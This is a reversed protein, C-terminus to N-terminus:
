VEILLELVFSVADKCYVPHKKNKSKKPRFAKNMSFFETIRRSFLRREFLLM